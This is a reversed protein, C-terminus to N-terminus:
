FRFNLGGRMSRPTHVLVLTQGDSTSIPLYGEALLNRLDVTAEMRFPMGLVPPIPQRVAINLGPEAQGCQTSYLHGDTVARDDMFQYSAIFQTGIHPVTGSARTTVAQRRTAHILSRLEDPSDIVMEKSSPALVGVSGYMVTLQFNEGMNQSIAATYGLTHYNGANFLVGDSYLDPLLNGSFNAGDASAIMLAANSVEEYYGSVSVERSGLRRSYGLEYDEGRQVNAKGSRLTVPPVAGLEAMDRQLDANADMPNLGLEPRPNGSTYTAEIQGADGLSYTLRAYPSLYHLHDGFIMTDAELGYVLDMVDSLQIKDGLSVAMTRLPASASDPQGGYQPLYLQRMTIALEPSVGDLNRSYTARFSASPANTAVGYGVNGAFQVQNSGFVSTAFAFTTGLEGAPTAGFSDGSSIRVVGRMDSFVPASSRSPDSSAHESPLYRFVPRTFGSSRLVWKWDESAIDSGRDGPPVIHISSFLSSLNIDLINSEGALVRIQNRVAPIFTGLTVRISYVDPLLGGFVFFGEPDTLARDVLKDQRNYIQVVAGMQPKGGDDSVRGELAGALKLPSVAFSACPMGAAVLVTAAVAVSFRTQRTKPIM